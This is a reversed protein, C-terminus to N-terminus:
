ILGNIKRVRNMRRLIKATNSFCYQEVEVYIADDPRFVQKLAGIRGNGEFAIYSGEGEQVVKIASVSPLYKRLIAQNLYQIELLKERQKKLVSVRQEMVQHTNNRDLPHIAHLDCLPVDTVETHTRKRHIDMVVKALLIDKHSLDKAESKKGLLYHFIKQM